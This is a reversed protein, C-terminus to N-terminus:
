IEYSSDIRGVCLTISNLSIFIHNHFKGCLSLSQHRKREKWVVDLWDDSNDLINYLKELLLFFFLFYLRGENTIQNGVIVRTWKSTQTSQM